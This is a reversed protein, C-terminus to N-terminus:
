ATPAEECQELAQFEAAAAALHQRKEPTATLEAELREGQARVAFNPAKQLQMKPLSLGELGTCRRFIALAWALNQLDQE